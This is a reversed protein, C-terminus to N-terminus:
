ATLGASNKQRPEGAAEFRGDVIRLAQASSGATPVWTVNHGRDRMFEVTSADYTEEFAAVNPLLQDHLRPQRVAEAVSMESDLIDLANQLVTTIIRSGGSAGFVSYLTGNAHEAIMPSISSLSRKGPRIFNSPSPYYGFVNSANPVSFDNMENNMIIGTEPVMLRSGFFLNITTTLSFALGTTDATVIQSTGHDNLIEFGDPDYDSVNLTHYDSISARTKAAFRKSLMESELETVGEVFNPDGFRSRQGFGFRAAEDMRHIRLGHEEKSTVGYGELINLASLVVPSSTPVSCGHVIFDRYTIKIPRRSLVRYEKLDELTMSGNSARIANIMAKAIPGKYFADGGGTAIGQLTRAYRKRTMTDGQKVRVGHPAFDEAWVPDLTLFDYLRTSHDLAAAFDESVIFGDRALEIAPQLLQSWPVSGYRDHIYKLGRIEGPM